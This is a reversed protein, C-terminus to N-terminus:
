EFCLDVAPITGECDCIESIHIMVIEQLPDSDIIPYYDWRQTLYMYYTEEKSPFFFEMEIEMGDIEIIPNEARVLLFFLIFFNFM